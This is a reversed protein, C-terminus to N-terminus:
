KLMSGRRFDSSITKVALVIIKDWKLRSTQFSINIIKAGLMIKNWKLRPGM